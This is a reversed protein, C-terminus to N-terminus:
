VEAPRPQVGHARIDHQRAVSVLGLRILRNSGALGTWNRASALGVDLTRRRGNGSEWRSSQSQQSLPRRPKVNPPFLLVYHESALSFSFLPSHPFPSYM